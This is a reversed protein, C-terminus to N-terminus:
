SRPGKPYSKEENRAPGKAVGTEPMASHEYSVLFGRRWRFLRVFMPGKVIM